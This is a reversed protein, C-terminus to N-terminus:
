YQWGDTILVVHRPGAAAQMASLNAAAELSQAMPTYNGSAPPASGLAGVISDKNNLNPAVDLAGPGCQNPQPFTMLGFEAKTQYQGLLSILGGKAIDWKSVGNITGTVMSSSKDLVVMVRAPSCTDASATHAAFLASSALPISVSPQLMPAAASLLRFAM